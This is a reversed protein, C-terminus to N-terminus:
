CHWVASREFRVKEQARGFQGPNAELHWAVGRLVAGSRVLGCRVVGCRVASCRVM